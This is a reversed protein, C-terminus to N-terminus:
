EYAKLPMLQANIRRQLVLYLVSVVLLPFGLQPLDNTFAFYAIVGVGLAFVSTAWFAPEV